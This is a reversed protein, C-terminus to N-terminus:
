QERKGVTVISVETGDITGGVQYLQFRAIGGLEEGSPGYLQGAFLGSGGFGSASTALATNGTLEGNQIDVFGNTIALDPMILDAGGSTSTGAMEFIASLMGNQFNLLFDSTGSVSWSDVINAARGVVIGAYKATGTPNIVGFSPELGYIFYQNNGIASLHGTMLSPGALVSFEGFSAYHLQILNNSNGPTALRLQYDSGDHSTRYVAYDPMSLAEDRDSQEFVPAQDRQNIDNIYTYSGDMMYGLRGYDDYMTRVMHFEQDAVLETLLFNKPLVSDARQGVITGEFHEDPDDSWFVAGLEEAAPGYFRGAFRSTSYYNFTGSFTADSAITALGTFPRTANDLTGNILDYSVASGTLHLQGLSFDVNISGDGVIVRSGSTSAQNTYFGFLDIGYGATGTRPLGSATTPLGYTFPYFSLDFGGDATAVNRQWYGGNVYQFTRTGGLSPTGITFFSTSTPTERRYNRYPEQETGVHDGPRFTESLGPVTLTYSQTAADYTITLTTTGGDQVNGILNQDYHTKNFVADNAFTQSAVLNNLDTNAATSPTPTPTPSPAATPSPSPAPTSNVGGGGGGCAAVLLCVSSLFLAAVRMFDGVCCVAAIWGGCLM